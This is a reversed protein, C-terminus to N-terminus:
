DGPVPSIDQGKEGEGGPVMWLTIRSLLYGTGTLGRLGM